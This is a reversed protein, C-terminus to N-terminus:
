GPSSLWGPCATAALCIRPKPPMTLTRNAPPRWAASSKHERVSSKM